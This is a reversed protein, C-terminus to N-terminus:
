FSSNLFSQAPDVFFRLVRLALLRKIQPKPTPRLFLAALLDTQRTFRDPVPTIIKAM